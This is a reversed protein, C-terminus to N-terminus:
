WDPLIVESTELQQTTQIMSPTVHAINNAKIAATASITISFLPILTYYFLEDRSFLATSHSDLFKRM